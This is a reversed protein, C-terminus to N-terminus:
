LSEYQAWFPDQKVAIVSESKIVPIGHALDIYSLETIGRDDVAKMVKNYNLGVQAIGHSDDSLCFKGGNALIIKCIDARPYPESWGKRIASSNLEFLGGYQVVLKVNREVKEAVAPWDTIPRDSDQQAFLRILDFHGIVPPRLDALMVYQEDFYRAFMSETTGGCKVMANNWLPVDFDIPIEHVHHLSGIFLDFKYKLQLSKILNSYNPRIYDVEFGVLLTITNAYKAQLERAHHYFKDFNSELDDLSMELEEPYLDSRDNRPIHETMCFSKFGKAIVSEIVDDLHDNAHQIYDGSHSHHSRM